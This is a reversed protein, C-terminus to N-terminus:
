SPKTHTPIHAASTSYQPAIDSAPTPQQTYIGPISIHKHTHSPHTHSKKHKIIVLKIKIIKVKLLSLAFEKNYNTATFHILNKNKM